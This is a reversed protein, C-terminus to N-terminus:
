RDWSAREEDLYERVEEATKFLRRGPASNLIELASRGRMNSERRVVVDVTQGEELEPSVIELKGGPLVTAKLHLVKQM